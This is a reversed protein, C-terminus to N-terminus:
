YSPTDNQKDLLHKVKSLLEELRFPKGLVEAGCRKIRDEYGNYNGSMFLIPYQKRVELLQLYMNPGSLNPMMVDSIILSPELELAMRLGEAGDAATYVAYNDMKLIRSVLDRVSKEDDVVLITKSM